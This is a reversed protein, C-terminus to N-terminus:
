SRAVERTVGPIWFGQHKSAHVPFYSGPSEPLRSPTALILVPLRGCRFPTLPGFGHSHQVSAISFVVKSSLKAIEINEMGYSFMSKRPKSSVAPGFGCSPRMGPDLVAHPMWQALCLPMWQALCPPCPCPADVGETYGLPVHAHPMWGLSRDTVLKEGPLTPFCLISPCM